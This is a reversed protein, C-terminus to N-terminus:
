WPIYFVTYSLIKKQRFAKRQRKAICDYLHMKQPISSLKLSKESMEEYRENQLKVSCLKYMCIVSSHFDLKTREMMNGDWGAPTDLSIHITQGTKDLTMTISCVLDGLTESYKKFSFLLKQIFGQCLLWDALYLQLCRKFVIVNWYRLETDKM